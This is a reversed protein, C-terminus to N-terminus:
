EWKTSGRRGQKTTTRNNKSNKPCSWVTSKVVCLEAIPWGSLLCLIRAETMKGEGWGVRCV